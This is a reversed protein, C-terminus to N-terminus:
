WFLELIKRGDVMRFEGAEHVCCKGIVETLTTRGSSVNDGKSTTGNGVTGFGLRDGGEAGCLSFEEGSDSSGFSDKVKSRDETIELEGHGRRCGDVFIIFSTDLDNIGTVGSFANTMNINWGKTDLGPFFAAVDTEVVNWTNQIWRISVAFWKTPNKVRAVTAAHHAM